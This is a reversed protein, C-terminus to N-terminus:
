ASDSNSRPTRQAALLAADAKAGERQVALEVLADVDVDHAPAHAEDGGGEGVPADDTPLPQLPPAPLVAGTFLYRNPPVFEYAAPAAPDAPVAGPARAAGVDDDAHCPSRPLALAAASHADPDDDPLSGWGLRRAIECLIM